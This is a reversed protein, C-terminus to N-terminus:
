RQGLGYALAFGLPVVPEGGGLLADVRLRASLRRFVPWSLGLGLLAHGEEALAVGATVDFLTGGSGMRVVGALTTATEQYSRQIPQSGNPISVQYDYLLRHSAEAGVLVSGLQTFLARVGIHYGAQSWDRARQNDAEAIAEVDVLAYTGGAELELRVQADVAAPAFLAIAAAATLIRTM